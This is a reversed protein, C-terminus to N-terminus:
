HLFGALIRAGDGVGESHQFLFTGAVLIDAGADLIRASTSENVGGDVMVHFTAQPKEKWARLARIKELIAVQFEQGGFGPEVSLVDVVSVVGTELLPYLEHVDTSPNISVGCKMGANVIQATLDIAEDVDRMAEWQFIFCDAGVSAMADVYRSPREVCMHLDLTARRGGDEANRSPFSDCSRRIADVMQPGFTLANPSDLFVGDFVDVHFRRLGAAMCRHVEDRMIAWDCALLSPSITRSLETTDDTTELEAGSSQEQHTWETTTTTATPPVSEAAAAAGGRLDHIAHAVPRVAEAVRSYVSQYIADYQAVAVPDPEVRRATRVHRVAAEVSDHVGCGVAALIACGLAPADRSHECVVVTKGTVDAHMQLWVDSRTVGGAVVLEAGCPHGAAALGEVCARTGFCVAELLARWLHARTHSLTLGLLAGRARPDTVPTRSGQFTELAVLGDAGPAIQDAEEDLVQYNTTADDDTGGLLNNRAWRLISGTSSQGGEAFNIHPLPAGKYAGWTGPATTANATVVCHLHSSGTILCLQGPRICGLGIMGVFADPGGQIVPLHAPLGLHAAAAATLGGVTAGMPLCTAPLKDALEPMGLKRYLSLPRGPYPNAETAAQLCERGDWHWRTAANCSSATWRGTLQYNIYDQYECITVAQEWIEPENQCIWLAKPTMWEASVPGDGGVALAPDGTARVHGTQAAARQDMWLLCPRLPEDNADLAVVSCCTTDVCLGRIDWEEEEEDDIDTELLSQVAGRVARGCGDWWDDPDQEAWGARPHRTPYPAACPTGRLEGTVADYCAARVSETGGDVGLVVARRRRISTSSPSSASWPPATAGADGSTLSPRTLLLLILLFTRRIISPCFCSSPQSM